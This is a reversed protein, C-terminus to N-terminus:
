TTGQRNRIVDFVKEGKAVDQRRGENDRAHARLDMGATPIALHYFGTTGSGTGASSPARNANPLPGAKM